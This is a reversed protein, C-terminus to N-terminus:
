AEFGLSQFPTCQQWIPERQAFLQKQALSGNLEGASRGSTPRCRGTILVSLGGGPAALM